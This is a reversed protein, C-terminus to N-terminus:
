SLQSDNDFRTALSVGHEHEGAEASGGVAVLEAAPQLAGEVHQCRLAAVQVSPDAAVDVVGVQPHADEGAGAIPRKGSPRIQLGVRPGTKICVEPPGVQREPSDGVPQLGPLRDDRRDVAEVRWSRRADALRMRAPQALGLTPIPQDDLEM